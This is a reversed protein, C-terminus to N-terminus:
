KIPSPNYGRSQVSWKGQGLVSPASSKFIKRSMERGDPDLVARPGELSSLKPATNEHYEISNDFSSNQQTRPDAGGTFCGKHYQFRLKRGDRVMVVDDKYIIKKCARCSGQRNARSPGTLEWYAEGTRFNAGSVATM